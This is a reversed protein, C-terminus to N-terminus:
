GMWPATDVRSAVVEASLGQDRGATALQQRWAPMAAQETAHHGADILALGQERANLAEHHTLDGTVLVDAGAATAADILARGAGGVAAVRRVERARSGAVRLHPAPLEERLRDALEGLQEVEPLDGVRGLGVPRGARDVPVATLPYLDYAVEEYPHVSLLAAVAAGVSRPPVVMEIRQEHEDSAVGVTGSYPDAASTPRFTGTGGVRFACREYAGVRGAGAEALADLVADLHSDPVFTVLKRGEEVDGVPELPQPDDVGVIAMIPDSTGAGDAAVDLNTHAALVAVGARAAALAVTGAATDPTLRELPRFLVPHHAAVLTAPGDAAEDIVASTVDLAVLVREVPWDPAGVQLGVSDWDAAHAPPWRDAVLAVWAGVTDAM